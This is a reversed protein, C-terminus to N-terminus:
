VLIESVEQPMSFIPFHGSELTFVKEIKWSEIMQDQLVPSMVLDKESRLYYKKLSGFKGDTLVAPFVFPEVAQPVSLEEIYGKATEDDFDNLLINKIDQPICHQYRKIKRAPLFM